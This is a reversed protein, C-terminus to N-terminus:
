PWNKFTWDPFLPGAGPLDSSEFPMRFYVDAISVRLEIAQSNFTHSSVTSFPGPVSRPLPEHKSNGYLGQSIQVEFSSNVRQLKDGVPARPLQGRPRRAGGRPPHYNLNWEIPPPITEQHRRRERETHRRRRRVRVLRAAASPRLSWKAAPSRSVQLCDAGVRSTSVQKSTKTKPM